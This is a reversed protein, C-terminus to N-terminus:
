FVRLKKDDDQEMNIKSSNISKINKNVIDASLIQNREKLIMIAVRQGLNLFKNFKKEEVVISTPIDSAFEKTWFNLGNIEELRDNKLHELENININYHTLIEDVISDINNEKDEKLSLFNNYIKGSHADISIVQGSILTDINEEGIGVICPKDWSRALIAAHSTFGGNGTVFADTKLMIPAHDPSTEKAVFIWGFNKDEKLEDYLNSYISMDEANRVVIGRIVGPNGILGHSLEQSESTDLTDKSVLNEVSMSTLLQEKDILGNEYLEVNLKYQAISSCVAKRKQLIYLNGDEITFEIDQIDGTTKELNEAISVLQNYATPNFVKLESINLPTVAGSVVDEGQAKPLFEGIIGKKGSICDRSFLVGTCSKENLNGFVMKQVIAATGIDHSIDHFDRYAIARESNWSNFVAEVCHRLQQKSNLPFKNDYNQTIKHKDLLVRFKFLNKSISTSLEIDEHLRSKAFLKIFKNVCEDVVPKGMKECLYDYNSDDIGVNLITDMMGPMSISSGSRVSFPQVMYESNRFNNITKNLTPRLKTLWKTKENFYSAANTTPFISAPPVPLNDKIMDVIGYAKNGLFAKTNQEERIENINLLDFSFNYNNDKVIKKQSKGIFNGLMEHYNYHSSPIEVIDKENYKSGELAKPFNFIPTSVPYSKIIATFSGNKFTFDSKITNLNRINEAISELIDPFQHRNILNDLGYIPNLKDYIKESDYSYHNLFETAEFNTKLFSLLYGKHQLNLLFQTELIRCTRSDSYDAIAQTKWYTYGINSDYIIEKNFIQGGNHELSFAQDIFVEANIKGTAFDLGHQTIKEWPKGGYGGDYDNYKFLVRCFNLIEEITFNYKENKNFLKLFTDKLGDRGYTSGTEKIELMFELFDFLKNPDISSDYEKYQLSMEKTYEEAAEKYKDRIKQSEESTESYQSYNDDYRYRDKIENIKKLTRCHRTEAICISFIYSFMTKSQNNVEEIYTKYLEIAQGNLIENSDQRIKSLVENLGYFKIIEHSVKKKKNSLEKELIPSFDVMRTHSFDVTKNYPVNIEPWYIYNNLLSTIEM